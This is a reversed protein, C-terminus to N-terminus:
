SSYLGFNLMMGIINGKTTRYYEKKERYRDLCNM